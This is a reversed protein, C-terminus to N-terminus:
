HVLAEIAPKNPCFAPMTREPGSKALWGECDAALHCGACRVVLEDLETRQLWGEVVAHSLNVGSIRAMGRTLWWARYADPYGIM